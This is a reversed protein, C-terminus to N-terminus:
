KVWATLFYLLPAIFMVTDFRDLVGGHGPIVGSSDKVGADRKFMSEMLDGAPSVVGIMLGILPANGDPFGPVYLSCVWSLAVSGIIGAFYGEWTKKPSLRPFLKRTIFKGGLRSGGFYAFIDAAWVCVFMLLVLAAGAETGPAGPASGSMRLRLLAGFSLNVYVLGVLTSGINLFQSGQQRWLEIVYLIMVMVLLAEWYDIFRFYFNTQIFATLALLLPLAPPHARHAALRRFEFTGMLSLVLVLFLFPVGGTMNIWLLLPIGVIAVAVRQFLNNQLLSSM